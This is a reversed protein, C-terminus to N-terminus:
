PLSFRLVITLFEVDVLSKDDSRTETSNGVLEGLVQILAEHEEDFLYNTTLLPGYRVGHRSRKRRSIDGVRAFTITVVQSLNTWESRGLRM